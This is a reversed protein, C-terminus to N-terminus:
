PEDDPRATDKEDSIPPLSSRSAPEDVEVGEVSSVNPVPSHWWPAEPVAPGGTEEVPASDAGTLRRTDDDDGATPADDHDGAVVTPDTRHGETVTTPDDGLDVPPAAGDGGDPAVDGDRDPAVGERRNRV